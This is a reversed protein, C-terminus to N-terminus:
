SSRRLTLLLGIGGLAIVAAVGLMVVGSQDYLRDLTSEDEKEASAREEVVPAVAGSPIAEAGSDTAQPLPPLAFGEAAGFAVEIRRGGVLGVIVSNATTLGYSAPASARVDYQGAPLDVCLPAASDDWLHTEDYAAGQITVQAGALEPEDPDHLANRNLDDYM